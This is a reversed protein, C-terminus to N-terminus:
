RQEQQQPQEPQQKVQPQQGEAGGLKSLFSTFGKHEEAADRMRYQSTQVKNKLDSLFRQILGQANDAECSFKFDEGHPGEIEF